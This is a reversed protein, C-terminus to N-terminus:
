KVPPGYDTKDTLLRLKVPGGDATTVGLFAFLMEDTTGEGRRVDKPPRSPNIPNKATNDYEAEVTLVTGSKLPLPDVLQYNEQWNYDWRDIAVVTQERGGPPTATVRIKTGLMHMHPLASYVTCDQGLVVRGAVRYGSKGAPILGFPEYDDTVSVLGPVTLLQIRKRSADKAFYFGIRTRDTEPKGSRHYHIQLVVDSGKPLILGTGPHAKVGRMGPTWGGLGGVAGPDEPTFGIGMPSEYGPGRDDSTPRFDKTMRRATGTTDFYNIIHHVVRPNGPRVEFGVLMKDETLGTPLVVCRFHDPGNAALHMDADMTLVLDPEGLSWGKPFERAPPADEPDGAPTGAEVWKALTEIERTPLRRDHQMPVGATQKWPPMKKSATYDKIDEAWTVAQKYTMLSFPGVEGPRHCEQCRARLIPLVDRYYTVPGTTVPREVAVIRCGVPLTAPVEVSKGALVADVADKLDHRTVAANAQLRAGYKDDIRGRYRVVREADLVFVEPTHGAALAAVAQHKRDAVIPFGAGFERAQRAIEAPSDGTPVYGIFAVKPGYDAALRSLTTVYDRAVPCDFSLFAVVAPKGAADWLDPLDVKEGLRERSPRDGGVSVAAGSLFALTTFFWKLQSM